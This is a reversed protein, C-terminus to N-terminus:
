QIRQGNAIIHGQDNIEIKSTLTDEGEGPVALMGMMMRAGMADQDSVLGMSILNDILGNAGVLKLDVAGTPKPMGDFTQLDTNDFTFDGSGSLEAGIASLLLSRVTVANLEGPNAVDMGMDEAFEPSLFDILVKAKGVLDVTITAPDRPLTGGPDFIGWIMESMTFDGLTFSFEFDQEADTKAVPLLMHFGTKAMELAIPFPIEAGAVNIATQSQNVDYIIRNPDMAVRLDGGQSASAFQFSEGDDTGALDTKGSSYSFAGDFKFGADLMSRMNDPDMDSPITSSGELRVGTLMGSMAANDTGEPDNFSFSYTIGDGSMRQDYARIDGGTMTSSSSVNSMSMEVQVNDSMDEGDALVSALKVAVSAATYAYTLKSPDGSATMAYGTQSIDVQVSFSEGEETGTVMLPITAPMTIQVTGDGNEKFTITDASMTVGGDMEPISMSMSMDSVTLTDGSMAETASIEYGVSSLYARWDSWVDQATLDAWAPGAAVAYAIVTGYSLASKLKM